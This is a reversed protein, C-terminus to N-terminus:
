PKSYMEKLWMQTGDTFNLGGKEFQDISDFKMKEVKRSVEGLWWTMLTCIM